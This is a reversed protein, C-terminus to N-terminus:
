PGMTPLQCFPEVVRAEKPINCSFLCPEVLGVKETDHSWPLM